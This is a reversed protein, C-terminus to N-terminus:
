HGARVAELESVTALGSGIPAGRVRVGTVAVPEALWWELVEFALGASLEPPAPVDALIWVGGARLEVTASAFGASHTGQQFSFTHPGEVLRVGRAQLPQTWTVELALERAPPKLALAVYRRASSVPIKPDVGTFDYELGDRVESMAAGSPGPAFLTAGALATSAPGGASELWVSGSTAQRAALPNDGPGFPAASSPPLILVDGALQGGAALVEEVVRPLMREAMASFRDLCDPYWPVCFPPSFGIRTRLIDYHDSLVVGPFAAAVADAGTLLGLLGGMTATGNDSDWGSLAGIQITRRLDGEGFLLAMLGTALNVPSEYWKLYLFGNADDHAQYREWIADRALEWDDPDDCALYQAVVFDVVDAAKSGEPLLRRAGDVLGLIQEALAPSAEAAAALSYLAVHFQAAHAAFGTATTRIPLDALELARVPLGPAVAGFLETTLQADIMHAQANAALLGTSGPLVSPVARMLNHAALNSVWVFSNPAIHALWAARIEEASLEARGALTMADLYIYEIDTDDDAGWPHQFVFDILGGNQEPNGAFTGWDADTFFPPETHVGETVLGTWNAISQALWLGRLREAYEPLGLAPGALQRASPQSAHEPAQQAAPVGAAPSALALALVARSSPKM